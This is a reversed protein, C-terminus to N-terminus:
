KKTYCLCKSQEIIEQLSFSKYERWPKGRQQPRVYTMWSIQGWANPAKMASQHASCHMRLWLPPKSAGFATHFTSLSLIEKILRMVGKTFHFGPFMSVYWWAHFFFLCFPLSFLPQQKCPSKEAIKSVWFVKREQLLDSSINCVGHSAIMWIQSCISKRM